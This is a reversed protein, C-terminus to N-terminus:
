RERSQMLATAFFRFNDIARPIEMTRALWLPKGQDLSEARAFDELRTQILDAIRNLYYARKAITQRSWRFL